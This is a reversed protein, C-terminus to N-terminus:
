WTKKQIDAASWWSRCERGCEKVVPRAETSDVLVLAVNLSLVNSFELVYPGGPLGLHERTAANARVHRFRLLQTAPYSKHGDQRLIRFFKFFHHNRTHM